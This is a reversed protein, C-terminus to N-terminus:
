QGRFHRAAAVGHSRGVQGLVHEGLSVNVLTVRKHGQAHGLRVHVAAAMIRAARKVQVHLRAHRKVFARMAHKDPLVHGQRVHAVAVM